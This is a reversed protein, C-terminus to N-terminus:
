TQSTIGAHWIMSFGKSFDLVAARTAGSSYGLLELLEMLYLWSFIHLQDLLGLVVRLILGCFPWM